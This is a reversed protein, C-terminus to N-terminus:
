KDKKTRKLEDIQTQLEQRMQNLGERLELVVADKLATGAADSLVKQPINNVSDVLEKRLRTEIASLNRNVERAKDDAVSDMRNNARNVIDNIEDVTYVEFSVTNPDGGRPYARIASSPGAGDGGYSLIEEGRRHDTAHRLFLVRQKAAVSVALVIIVLLVVITQANKTNQSKM